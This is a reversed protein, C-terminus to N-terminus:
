HSQAMFRNLNAMAKQSVKNKYFSTWGLLLGSFGLAQKAWKYFDFSDIHEVILGNRFKFKACIQNEVRNGSGSFIYTAEWFAEGRDQDVKVDRYRIKVDKGNVCFMQWMGRVRDADLHTFVPDSFVADDAYCAQMVEFDKDIFGQYLRHITKDNISM